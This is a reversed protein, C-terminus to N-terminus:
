ALPPARSAWSGALGSPRAAPREPRIRAPAVDSRPALFVFVAALVIFGALVSAHGGGSCLICHNCHGSHDPVAPAQRDASPKEGCIEGATALFSGAGGAAFAGSGLQAFVFAFTQLLFLGIVVSSVLASRIRQSRTWLKSM